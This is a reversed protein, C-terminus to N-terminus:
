EEAGATTATLTLILEAQAWALRSAWPVVATTQGDWHWSFASDTARQASHSLGGQASPDCRRWEEFEEVPAIHEPLDGLDALRLAWTLSRSAEERLGVEALTRAMRLTWFAWPGHGGDYWHWDKITARKPFRCFGGLAPHWLDALLKEAVSRARPHSARVVGAWLPAMTSVDAVAIREGDARITKVAPEGGWFARETARRLEEADDLLATAEAARGLREAVQGAERLGRACWSNAWVDLGDELEASEHVSHRSRVLGSPERQARIFAAGAALAPWASRALDEGATAAVFRGVAYLVLGTADTELERSVRPEGGRDYRQLWEGNPQQVGLLFELCRRVPATDGTALLADCVFACDRPYVYPYRDSELSAHFGGRADQAALLAQRASEILSDRRAKSIPETTM